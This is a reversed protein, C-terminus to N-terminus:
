NCGFIQFQQVTTTNSASSASWTAALALEAQSESSLSATSTGFMVQQNATSLVGTAVVSQEWKGNCQLTLGTTGGVATATIWCDLDWVVAAATPALTPWPTALTTGITGPTPDWILTIVVTAAATNGMTGAMHVRLCRGVGTPNSAFYNAPVIARPVATNGPATIIANSTFTNKTVPAPMSYLLETTTGTYFSM